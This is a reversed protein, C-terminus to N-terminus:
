PHPPGPASCRAADVQLHEGAGFALPGRATRRQRDGDADSVHRVLLAVSSPIVSANRVAAIRARALEVRLAVDGIADHEVALVVVRPSPSGRRTVTTLPSAEQRATAAADHTAFTVRSSVITCLRAADGGYSKQTSRRSGAGWCLPAAAVAQAGDM